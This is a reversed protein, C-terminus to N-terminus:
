FAMTPRNIRTEFYLLFSSFLLIGTSAMGYLRQGVKRTKRTKKALIGCFKYVSYFRQHLVQM